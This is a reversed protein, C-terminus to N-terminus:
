KDAKVLEAKMAAPVKALDHIQMDRDAVMKELLQMETPFSVIGFPEKRRGYAYEGNVARYKMFFQWNKDEVVAVLAGTHEAGPLVRVGNAWDLASGEALDRGNVRMTYAGPTLGKVTVVPLREILVAHVKVGSPPPAVPLSKFIFDPLATTDAGMANIQLSVPEIPLGLQEMMVQAVAWNGYRTLHVGNFTLPSASKDAMLSQVANFLDLFPLNLSAAVGRMAENYARLDDNHKTPSPLDGGLEEHPIPGVLVLRPSAKAPGCKLDVLRALFRTLDREFKPLGPAGAFSENMGYCAFIVDAQQAEIHTFINGFNLARLQLWTNTEWPGIGGPGAGTGLTGRVAEDGSFGLNRFTLKHGTLRSALLAEFYGHWLLREAFTNGIFVVRDNPKWAPKPLDAASIGGAVASLLVSLIAWKM